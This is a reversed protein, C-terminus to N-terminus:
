PWVDSHLFITVRHTKNSFVLKNHEKVIKGGM